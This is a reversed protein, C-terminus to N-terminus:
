DTQNIEKIFQSMFSALYRQRRKILHRATATHMTEGLRLLKRQFHDLIYKTDDLERNKALPDDKEYLEMNKSGGYAFAMAVGVAGSIDIRDADQLIKAELTEPAKHRSFRHVRIAHLVQPIRDEPFHCEILLKEAMEASVEAHDVEPDLQECGRGIDHLLAAAEVVLLNAKEKKGISSCLGHVRITHTADHGAYDYQKITELAKTKLCNMLSTTSGDTQHELDITLETGFSVFPTYIQM